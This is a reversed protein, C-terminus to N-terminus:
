SATRRAPGRGVVFRLRPGARLVFRRGGRKIEGDIMYDADGETEIRSEKVLEDLVDGSVRAGRYIRHIQAAIRLPSEAAAIIQFHGLKDLTRRFPAFGLGVETITAAMIARYPRRVREGGDLSVSAPIPSFIARAYAGGTLASALVRGLVETAKAPGRGKGEYYARLFNVPLGMGFLFGYEAGGNLDLAHREVMRCPEGRRHKEALRGLISLPAGAMTRMSKAITNMTGGRLLAIPPLTKGAKAYAPILATVVAHLTGDGGNVALIEARRGLCASVADPVNDVTKTELVVGDAGLLARMRRALDSTGRNRKTNPNSIVAIGPM